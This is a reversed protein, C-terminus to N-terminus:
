FSRVARVHATKFISPSQLGNFFNQLWANTTESSSWYSVEGFGGILNKNIYLKNLEDKSPLYWDNYGNLTLDHCLKAAYGSGEQFSVIANTNAKGSGLGMTTGNTIGKTGIYWTISTSQDSPTTILGHVQGAIYGPDGPQLIYAIVGGQFQQGIAPQSPTWVPINNVFTLVEGNSGASITVWATGNWYLMQGKITGKPLNSQAAVSASTLLLITLSLILKKM